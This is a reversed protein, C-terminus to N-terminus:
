EGEWFDTDPADIHGPPIDFRHYVAFTGDTARRVVPTGDSRIDTSVQVGSADLWVPNKPGLPTLWKSVLWWDGERGYVWLYDLPGNMISAVRM